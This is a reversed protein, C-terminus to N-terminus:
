STESGGVIGKMAIASVGAGAVQRVGFRVISSKYTLFVLLAIVASSIILFLAVESKLVTVADFQIGKWQNSGPDVMIGVPEVRKSIMSLVQPVIQLRSWPDPLMVFAFRYTWVMFQAAWWSFTSNAIIAGSCTILHKLTQLLTGKPAMVYTHGDLYPGVIEEAKAPEDSYIELIKSTEVLPIARQYFRGIDIYHLNGTMNKYDGLRVHVFVTNTLRPVERTVSNLFEQVYPRLAHAFRADQFYGDLIVLESASIHELIAEYSGRAIAQSNTAPATPLHPVKVITWLVENATNDHVAEPVWDDFIVLERGHASAYTAAAALQFFRNGLGSTLRVTVQHVIKNRVSNDKFPGQVAVQPQTGM